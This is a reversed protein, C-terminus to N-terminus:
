TSTMQLRVLWRHGGRTFRSQKGTGSALQHLLLGRALARVRTASGIGFRQGLEPWDTLHIGAPLDGNENLAPLM